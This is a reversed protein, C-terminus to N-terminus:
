FRAYRVLTDILSEEQQEESLFQQLYTRVKVPDTDGLPITIHPMMLKQSEIRLEKVQPPDYFIWFSTISEYPYLRDAIRIGESSVSFPVTHPRRAGYLAISFGSLLILASFLINGLIVAGAFLGATIIGIAWYWDTTKRYYPYEEAKWSIADTLRERTTEPKPPQEHTLSPKEEEQIPPKTNKQLHLVNPM